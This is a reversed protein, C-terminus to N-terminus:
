KKFKKFAITLVWRGCVGLVYWWYVEYKGFRVRALIFCTSLFIGIQIARMLLLPIIIFILYTGLRYLRKEVNHTYIDIIEVAKETAM